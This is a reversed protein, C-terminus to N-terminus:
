SIVPGSESALREIDSRRDGASVGTNRRARRTELTLQCHGGVQDARVDPCADNVSISTSEIGVFILSFGISRPDFPMGSQPHIDVIRQVSEERQERWSISASHVHNNVGFKPTPGFHVTRIPGVM